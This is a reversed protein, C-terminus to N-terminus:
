PAAAAAGHVRLRTCRRSANGDHVIALIRLQERSVPKLRHAVIFNLRFKPGAKPKESPSKL